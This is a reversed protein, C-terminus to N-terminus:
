RIGGPDRAVVADFFKVGASILDDVSGANAYTWDCPVVDVETESVHSSEAIEPVDRTLKMLGFAGRWRNVQHEIMSRELRFRIDPVVFARRPVPHVSALYHIKALFLHTWLGPANVADRSETGLLQMARRYDHLEKLVERSPGGMEELASRIPDALAIRHCGRHLALASALTDKGARARGCTGIVILGPIM